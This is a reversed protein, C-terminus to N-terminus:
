CYPEHRDDYQPHEDYWTNYKALWEDRKQSNDKMGAPRKMYLHWADTGFSGWDPEPLPSWIWCAFSTCSGVCSGPSYWGQDWWITEWPDWDNWECNGPEPQCRGPIIEECRWRHRVKYYSKSYNRNYAKSAMGTMYWSGDPSIRFYRYDLKKNPTNSNIRYGNVSVLVGNGQSAVNGYYDSPDGLMSMTEPDWWDYWNWKPIASAFCEATVNHDTPFRGYLGLAAAGNQKAAANAEAMKPMATDYYKKFLAVEKDLKDQYQRAVQGFYCIQSMISGCEPPQPNQGQCQNKYQEILADVKAVNKDVDAQYSEIKEAVGPLKNMYFLFNYTAHYATDYTDCITNYLPDNNTTNPSPYWAGQYEAEHCHQGTCISCPADQILTDAESERRAAMVPQFTFSCLSLDQEEPETECDCWAKEMEEEIEDIIEPKWVVLEKEFSIDPCTQRLKDRVEEVDEVAWIHPDEAEDIPDIPQCNSSGTPPSQLIDNVDRILLKWNEISFTKNPDYYKAM